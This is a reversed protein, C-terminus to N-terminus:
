RNMRELLAAEDASLFVPAGARLAMLAFREQEAGNNWRSPVVFAGNSRQLCEQLQHLESRGFILNLLRRLM